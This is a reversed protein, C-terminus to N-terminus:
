DTYGDDDVIVVDDSTFPNSTGTVLFRESGRNLVTEIIPLNVGPRGAKVGVVMSHLRAVGCSFPKTHPKETTPCSSVKFKCHDIFPCARLAPISGGVLGNSDCHDM